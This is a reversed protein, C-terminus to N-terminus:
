ARYALIVTNVGTVNAGAPYWAQLLDGPNLTLAGNNFSGWINGSVFTVGIYRYWSGGAPLHWIGGGSSTANPTADSMVYSGVCNAPIRLPVAVFYNAANGAVPNHFSIPLSLGVMQRSTSPVTFVGTADWAMRGAPGGLEGSGDGMVRFLNNNNIDRLLACYNASTSAAKVWLGQGPSEFYGAWQDIGYAVFTTQGALGHVTLANGASPASVTTQGAGDITLRRAGNTTFILSNEGRAAISMDSASGIGINALAAGMDGIGMGSRQWTIYPGRPETSNFVAVANVPSNVVLANAGELGNIIASGGNTWRSTTPNWTLMAGGPSQTTMDVDTLTELATVAPPLAKNVWHEHDWTLVEDDQPDSVTVDSLNGLDFRAATTKTWKDGDWLWSPFGPGPSFVDGNNPNSPFVLM